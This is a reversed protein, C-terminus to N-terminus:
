SSLCKQHKERRLSATSRKADLFRESIFSIQIYSTLQVARARSSIPVKNHDDMESFKLVLENVREGKINGIPLHM